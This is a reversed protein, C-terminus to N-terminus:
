YIEINSIVPCAKSKKFNVRIGTTKVEDIPLIRKYGVTTAQAVSKWENGNWAEVEVEQVRQGLRIYEQILVYSVTQAEEWHFEISGSTTEDDTAWYTDKDDDNVHKPAYKKAEGRYSTASVTAKPALNNGFAEDLLKKWGKLSEVDKEHILGDKDPPLNLLLNAGRGVSTLYINFLNKPTRVKEDEAEHYFWGPRISVDVEAPCWNAGTEAGNNLLENIGAKGAYITDTDITCWNTEGIYGKKM